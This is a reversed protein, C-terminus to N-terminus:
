EPFATVSFHLIGDPLCSLVHAQRRVASSLPIDGVPASGLDAVSAYASHGQIIIGHSNSM